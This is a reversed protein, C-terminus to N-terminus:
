RSLYRRGSLSAAPGILRGPSRRYNEIRETWFVECSEAPLTGTFETVDGELQTLPVEIGEWVLHVEANEPRPDLLSLDFQAHADVCRDLALEKRAARAPLHAGRGDCLIMACPPDEASVSETTERTLAFASLGPELSRLSHAMAFEASGEGAWFVHRLKAPLPREHRVRLVPGDFELPVDGLETTRGPELE